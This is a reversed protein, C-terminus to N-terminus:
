TLGSTPLLSNVPVQSVVKNTLDPVENGEADLEAFDLDLENEESAVSEPQTMSGLRYQIREVEQNV